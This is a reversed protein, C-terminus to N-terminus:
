SEPSQSARARNKAVSAPWKSRRIPAAAGNTANEPTRDPAGIPYGVRPPATAGVPLACSRSRVARRPRRARSEGVPVRSGHRWADADGPFARVQTMPSLAASLVSALRRTRGRECDGSVLGGAHARRATPIAHSPLATLARICGLRFSGGNGRSDHALASSRTRPM